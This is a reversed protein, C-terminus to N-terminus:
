VGQKALYEKISYWRQDKEVWVRTPTVFGGKYKAQGSLPASDGNWRRYIAGRMGPQVRYEKRWLAKLDSKLEEWTKPLLM